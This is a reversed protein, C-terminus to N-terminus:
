NEVPWDYFPPLLMQTLYISGIDDNTLHSGLKKECPECNWTFGLWETTKMQIGSNNPM